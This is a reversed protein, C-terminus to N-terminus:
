SAHLSAGGGRAAPAPSPRQHFVACAKIEGKQQRTDKEFQFFFIFPFFIASSVWLQFDLLTSHKLAMKMPIGPRLRAPSIGAEDGSCQRDIWVCWWTAKGGSTGSARNQCRSLVVNWSSPNRQQFEVAPIRSRHQRSPRAGQM